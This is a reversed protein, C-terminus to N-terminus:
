GRRAAQHVYQVFNSNSLAYPSRKERILEIAYDPDFGMYVLAHAVVLGSRNYGAQCRALVPLGAAVDSAVRRAVTRVTDLQEATLPGDPIPMLIHEGAAPGYDIGRPAANFLTVVLGFQDGVVAPMVPTGLGGPQYDHGGQWLGTIIEDRATTPYPIGIM